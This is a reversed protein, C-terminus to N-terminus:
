ISMVKWQNVWKKRVFNNAFLYTKEKNSIEKMKKITVTIRGDVQFKLMEGGGGPLARVNSSKFIPDNM